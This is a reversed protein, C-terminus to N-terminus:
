YAKVQDVLHLLHIQTLVPEMGLLSRMGKGVRHGERRGKGVGGMFGM